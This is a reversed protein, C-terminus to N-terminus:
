PTSNVCPLAEKHKFKQIRDGWNYGQAPLLMDILPTFASVLALSILLGDTRFMKFQIYYAVLAVLLGFIVRGSFRNPITKPDSIMFFCFILLAGSQLQHIPIELPDGLWLARGFLVSAWIVLFMPGMDRRPIQYLVLLGCCCLLFVLWAAQGWQGPSVWVDHPALFLLAVIGINTPNFVHKGRFRIVFKSGVTLLAAVPYFLVSSAKLLICLSLGSILASRLDVRAKYLRSFLFQFALCGGVALLVVLGTPGFDAWFVQLAVLSSLTTIQFHRPDRVFAQFLAAATMDAEFFICESTLRLM